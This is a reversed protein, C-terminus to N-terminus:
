RCEKDIQLCAEHMNIGLRDMLSEETVHFDFSGTVCSTRLHDNLLLIVSYWHTFSVSVFFAIDHVVIDMITM